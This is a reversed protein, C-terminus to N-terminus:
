EVLEQSAPVVVNQASYSWVAVYSKGCVAGLVTTFEPIGGGRESEVM